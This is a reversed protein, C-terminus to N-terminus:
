ISRKKEDAPTNNHRDHQCHKQGHCPKDIMRDFHLDDAILDRQASLKGTVFKTKRARDQGVDLCDLWQRLSVVAPM